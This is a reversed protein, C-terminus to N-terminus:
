ASAFGIEQMVDLKEMAKNIQNGVSIVEQAVQEYDRPSFDPEYPYLLGAVMVGDWIEEDDEDRPNTRTINEIRCDSHISVSQVDTVVSEAEDEEVDSIREYAVKEHLHEDRLNSDDIEYRELHGRLLQNEEEYAAAITQSMSFQSIIMFYRDNPEAFFELQNNDRSILFHKGTQHARQGVIFDGASLVYSLVEGIADYYEDAAMSLFISSETQFKGNM